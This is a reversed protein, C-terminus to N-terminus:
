SKPNPKKEAMKVVLFLFLIGNLLMLFMFIFYGTWHLTPILIPPLSILIGQNSAYIFTLQRTQVAKLTIVLGLLIVPVVFFILTPNQLPLALLCIMSFILQVVLLSFLLIPFKKKETKPLAAM